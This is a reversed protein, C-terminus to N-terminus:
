DVRGASRLSSSNRDAWRRKADATHRKPGPGDNERRGEKHRHLAERPQRVDGEKEREFLNDLSLPLRGHEAHGSGIGEPENGMPGRFLESALRGNCNDFWHTKLLKQMDTSLEPLAAKAQLLLQALGAVVREDHHAVDALSDTPTDAEDTLTHISRLLQLTRANKDQREKETIFVEPYPPKSYVHVCTTLRDIVVQAWRLWEEHSPKQTEQVSMLDM